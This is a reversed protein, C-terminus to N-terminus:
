LFYDQNVEFKKNKNKQRELELPFFQSTIIQM